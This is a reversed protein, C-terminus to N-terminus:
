GHVRNEFIVGTDVARSCPHGFRRGPGRGTFMPTIKVGTDVPRPCPGHVHTTHVSSLAAQRYFFKAM